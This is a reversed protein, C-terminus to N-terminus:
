SGLANPAIDPASNCHLPAPHVRAALGFMRLSLEPQEREPCDADDIAVDSRAREVRDLRRDVPRATLDRRLVREADERQDDPGEDDDGRDFIDPDDHAGVIVALAANERQHGQEADLVSALGQNDRDAHEAGSQQKSVARDRWRNRNEGRELAELRRRRRDAVIDHRKGDGHEDPEEGHLRAPRRRIERRKPGM